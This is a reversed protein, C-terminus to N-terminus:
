GFAEAQDSASCISVIYKDWLSAPVITGPHEKEWQLLREEATFAYDSASLFAFINMEVDHPLSQIRNKFANFAIGQLKRQHKKRM